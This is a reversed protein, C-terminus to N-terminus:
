FSVLKHVRQRHWALHILVMIFICYSVDQMTLNTLYVGLSYRCRRLQLVVIAIDTQEEVHRDDDLSRQIDNFAM